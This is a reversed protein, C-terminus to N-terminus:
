GKRRKEGKDDDPQPIEALDYELTGHDLEEMAVRTPKQSHPRDVIPPAGAMLQRARRAAVVVYAFKSDPADKLVTM